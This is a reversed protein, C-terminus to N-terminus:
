KSSTEELKPRLRNIGLFRLKFNGYTSRSALEFMTTKPDNNAIQISKKSINSGLPLPDL